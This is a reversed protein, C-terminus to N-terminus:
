KRVIKTTYVGVDTQLRLFYVGAPLDAAQWVMREQGLFVRDKALVAVESGQLDYIALKGSLAKETFFEISVQDGSPNPAVQMEFGPSELLKTTNVQTVAILDGFPNIGDAYKLHRLVTYTGGGAPDYEFIVGNDSSGGAYTMGYFKGGSEILSGYPFIGTNDVFHHKVSYTGGGSGDPAYEFLVGTYNSGGFPTMGYIKGNSVILGGNPQHGTAEEFNHKVSLAGTGSIAPDYEFLVGGDTGGHSTMGYFKGGWELLIDQPYIGNTANFHYKVTYTGSGTGGSVPDYEFLVGYDNSGGSRTVGYFKGGSEILGGDPARGELNSFHHKVTYAGGGGAAPDYEFLVGDNNSGGYRAVGYFKGGSALLSGYPSSGEANNFHHKVTCDGGGGAPDYEFLVGSRNIGGENTMGYFKGDSAILNGFPKSPNTRDFHHKVTYVGEGTGGGAPDYEFVVGGTLNGGTTTMGYFKGDSEILSGYPESGTTYTFHHKVTYASSGSIAPDYEFLVGDQNSGGGVTMGYLKGGSVLLSGYPIAGNPFDFHHKVSYTGGGIPAYEFLVGGGNSGGYLTMGYIKGGSTTLSGTPERGTADAFHHKVKYAGTAPNYEFIVGSIGSGGYRTMGYFIGGIEILSGNPDAGTATAFHHKVTYIGTGGGAPDYEFLVGRGNSGGDYTMGYFKGGSVLLSGNPGAGTANVFHHKVSYTGGGSPDYEFLVGDGNSGGGATLGYFKGDFAVLSGEPRSGNTNDFNHKVTLTGGGSGNPDYEFLIGGGSSGGNRTMGYFKGGSELLDGYPNAGENEFAYNAFGSGDTNIKIISGYGAAGYSTMGWLETQAVIRISVMLFLLILAPPFCYSPLLPFTTKKM